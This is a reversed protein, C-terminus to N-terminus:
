GVRDIGEQIALNTENEITQLLEDFTIEGNLAREENALYTATIPGPAGGQLYPNFRLRIDNYNLENQLVNWVQSRFTGDRPILDHLSVLGCIAGGEARNVAPQEGMFWEFVEWAADPAPSASTIFQGVAAFTPSVRSGKWVPAPIMRIRGNEIREQLAADDQSTLFGSYWFGLQVTAANGAAFEGHPGLEDPQISNFALREQSLNYHFAVADRADPNEVINAGTFDDSFLSAGTGNLWATWYRDSVNRNYAFGMHVLRDGEFKTLQRALEVVQEYTLPETESPPEVDMEEFKDLDIWLTFDPSFDNTMAYRDGEGIELLGNAKYFDNPWALDDERLVTSAGFREQLNLAIGRAYTQPFEPISTRMLDPPTGAALMSFFRTTDYDIHTLTIGPHEAEFDPILPIISTATAMMVIDGQPGAQAFARTPLNGQALLAAAAAGSLRLFTRRSVQPSRPQSKMQQDM